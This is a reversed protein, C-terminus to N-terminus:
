TQPQKLPNGRQAFGQRLVFMGEGSNTPQQRPFQQAHREQSKLALQERLHLAM